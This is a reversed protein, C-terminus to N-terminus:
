IIALQNSFWEKVENKKRRSIPLRAGSSMEIDEGFHVIEDTNVLFSKHCRKFLLDSLHKEFNGLTKSSLISTGDLLYLKTYNSQAECYLIHDVNLIRTGDSTSVGIRSKFEIPLKRIIANHDVAQANNM